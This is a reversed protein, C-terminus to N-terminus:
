KGLYELEIDGRIQFQCALRASPKDSAIISLLEREDPTPTTINESGKTINILCTSCIGTRCGYLVPTTTIDTSQSLNAGDEVEIIEGSLFTVQHNSSM